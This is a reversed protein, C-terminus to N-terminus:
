FNGRHSIAYSMYSYVLDNNRVSVSGNDERLGSMFTSNLVELATLRKNPNFEVLGKLLDVGGEITLLKKRAEKILHYNGFDFSFKLRDKQFQISDETALVGEKLVQNSNTRGTGRHPRSNEKNGDNEITM